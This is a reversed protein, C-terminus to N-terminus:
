VERIICHGPPTLETGCMTAQLLDKCVYCWLVQIILKCSLKSIYVLLISNPLLQKSEALCRTYLSVSRQEPLILAFERGFHVILSQLKQVQM